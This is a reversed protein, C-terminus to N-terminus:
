KGSALEKSRRTAAEVASIITARIKGEELAKLGAVTTGGPSTVMERLQAPHKDSQLCLRAAGLMTQMALKAALDRPLGMQEGADILAEIILFCYAPGSGSLGTVADMLKEGIEVSIGVANFIARTLKVDTSKACRGKAVAAAGEGILAPTNPMVRVVRTGKTLSKEIFNTTIGAAISIVVKSKDIASSIEKLTEAMNQPKVALIIIDVSKAAKENNHSVKVKLSSHLFDLRAADIDTVIIDKAPIIKHAILGQAIISGMKGGGIIAIKKGKLM